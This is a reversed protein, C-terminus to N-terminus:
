RKYLAPRELVPVTQPQGTEASQVFADAVVMAVYGDWVTPGTPQGVLLSQVWDQVERKYAEDFRVLWDPDIPQFQKRSQKVVPGSTHATRVTGGAGTIEVDVQYGYATATNMEVIGLTGDTFVMQGLYLWCTEPRTKDDRAWQSYVQAIEKKLLWRASHIDHVISNIIVDDITRPEEWREGVHFGRFLVTEGLEGSDLLAKLALHAADYERQFGLQVLRRGIAMETDLIEKTGAITDALPKECFAPKTAKLCAMVAEAHFPDPSAIALAQVDPDSVISDVDTYVKAGGCEAAVEEARPVDVDMVAVVKANPTTHALNRAHRGGMGGVGIVGIQMM